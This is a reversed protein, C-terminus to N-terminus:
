VCDTDLWSFYGIGVTVGAQRLEARLCRAFAETGAKSACYASLGPGPVIAAISAIALVHGEAEIVHGM